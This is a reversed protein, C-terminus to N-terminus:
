LSWPLDTCCQSLLYPTPLKAVIKCVSTFMYLCWDAEKFVSANNHKYICLVNNHMNLYEGIVVPRQPGAPYSWIGLRSDLSLCLGADCKVHLQIFNQLLPLSVAQARLSVEELGKLLYWFLTNFLGEAMLWWWRRISLHWEGRLCSHSWFYWEPLASFFM